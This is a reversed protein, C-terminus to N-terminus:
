LFNPRSAITTQQKKLTGSPSVTATQEIFDALYRAKWRRGQLGVIPKHALLQLHRETEVGQVIVGKCFDNVHNLLTDFAYGDGHKWFFDKSTKVYEFLGSTLMSLTSGGAAFDDLWLLAPTIGALKQLLLRDAACYRETFLASVELRLLPLRDLMKQTNANNLVGRIIDGDVNLSIIHTFGSKYLAELQELQLQFLQWKEAELLCDFLRHGSDADTLGNMERGPTFRTLLEWVTVKGSLAHVPDLLFAYHQRLSLQRGM